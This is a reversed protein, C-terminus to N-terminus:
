SPAFTMMPVGSYTVVLQDGAGLNFMGSTQGTVYSGVRVFSIQSVTGGSVVVNGAQTATYTFPSAGVTISAEAAPPNGINIDHFWRYYAASTNGKQSLAEPYNPVARWQRTM